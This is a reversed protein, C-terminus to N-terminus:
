VCVYTFCKGAVDLDNVDDDENMRIVRMRRKNNYNLKTRQSPRVFSVPKDVLHFIVSVSSVDIALDFEFRLNERKVARALLYFGAQSIDWRHNM